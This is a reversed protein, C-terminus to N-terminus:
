KRLDIFDYITMFKSIGSKIKDEKVNHWFFIIIKFDIARAVNGEGFQKVSVEFDDFILFGLNGVMLIADFKGLFRPQMSSFYSLGPHGEFHLNLAVLLLHECAYPCFFTNLCGSRDEGVGFGVLVFLDVLHLFEIGSDM